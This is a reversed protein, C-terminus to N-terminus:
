TSWGRPDMALGIVGASILEFAKRYGGDAIAGIAALALHDLLRGADLLLMSGALEFCTELDRTALLVPFSASPSTPPPANSSTSPATPTANRSSTM